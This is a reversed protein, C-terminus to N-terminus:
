NNFLRRLVETSSSWHDWHTFFSNLLLKYRSYFSTLFIVLKKLFFKMVTTNILGYIISSRSIVPTLCFMACSCEPLFFFFTQDIRKWMLLLSLLSAQCKHLLMCWCFHHHSHICM